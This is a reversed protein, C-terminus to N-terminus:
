TAIRKYRSKERYTDMVEITLVVSDHDPAGSHLHWDTKETHLVPDIVSCKLEHERQWQLAGLCPKSPENHCAWTKGHAQRMHVIEMPSPLCGYNQIIESEDTFSFQCGGTTSCQKTCM